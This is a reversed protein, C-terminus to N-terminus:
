DGPVVERCSLVDEDRVRIVSRGPGSWDSDLGAGEDAVNLEGTAGVTSSGDEDRAHILATAADGVADVPDVPRKVAALGPGPNLLDRRTTRGALRQAAVESRNGRNPPVHPPSLRRCPWAPNDVVHVRRPAAIGAVLAVDAVDAGVVVAVGPCSRDGEVAV